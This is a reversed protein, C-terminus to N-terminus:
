VLSYAYGQHCESCSFAAVDTVSTMPSPPSPTAAGPTHLQASCLVHRLHPVYILVRVCVEIATQVTADDHLCARGCAVHQALSAAAICLGRLLEFQTRKLTACAAVVGIFVAAPTHCSRAGLVCLSAVGVSCQVSSVQLSALPQIRMETVHPIIQNPKPPM